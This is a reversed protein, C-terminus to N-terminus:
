LQKLPSKIDPFICLTDNENCKLLLAFLLPDPFSVLFSPTIFPIRRNRLVCGQQIWGSMWYGNEGTKGTAKTSLVCFGQIYWCYGRKPM